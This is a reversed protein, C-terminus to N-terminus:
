RISCAFMSELGRGASSTGSGGFLYGTVTKWPNGRAEESHQKLYYLRFNGLTVADTVRFKASFCPEQLSAPTLIGAPSAPLSGALATLLCPLFCSIMNRGLGIPVTRNVCPNESGVLTVAFGFNLELSRCIRWQSCLNSMM